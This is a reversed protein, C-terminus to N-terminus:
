ESKKEPESKPLEPIPPPVAPPTAPKEAAPKEQARRKETAPVGPKTPAPPPKADPPITVPPTVAEIKPKPTGPQPLPPAAVPPTTVTIPPTTVTVPGPKAPTSSTGPPTAPIPPTGPAPPTGGPPTEPKKEALLASRDKLLQEITYKAILYPRQEFKKEAALKDEFGKLKTKFEEDLKTKDEPKEDKGPQREKVLDASVSFMVPYNEGNLKGIKLVYKFNDFTEITVTSPKDLGTEEAKADPALVDNFSAFSFLTGLSSVKSADVKEEEKAETLKWEATANERTLTWHQPETQGDLSISKTNEIKVFDKKLWREPKGEIEDFSDSVVSVKDTAGVPVVYRGVPFGGMDGMAGMGEQKRMQKKGLLLATLTKSDKDKLEIVTGTAGEKGPEVLDLRSFQSAGVKQVQVSKLEWLKRILDSVQEFSAPYDAREQVTWTDDKKVLNIESSPSKVTVRAVDNVPFELVKKGSGATSESWSARNEKFLIYGAGGVLAVLILLLALHKGKM